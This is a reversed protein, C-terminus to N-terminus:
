ANQHNRAVSLAVPRLWGDPDISQKLRTVVEFHTPEPVILSGGPGTMARLSGGWQRVERLLEPQRAVPWRIWFGGSLMDAVGHASSETALFRWLAQVCYFPVAGFWLEMTSDIPKLALDQAIWPNAEPDGHVQRIRRIAGTNGGHWVAYLTAAESSGAVVMATWPNVTDQFHRVVSFLADADGFQRVWVAEQRPRPALKFTADVIVGYSGETGLYLRPLNYGAVNKVVPAGVRVVGFRPTWVTLALVRDRLPGYGGRWVGELGHALLGGITDSQGDPIGVPLWQGREQLQHNLGDIRAGAEVQLLLDAADWRLISRYEALDM